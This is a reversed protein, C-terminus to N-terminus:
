SDRKYLERIQAITSEIEALAREVTAIDDGHIGYRPDEPLYRTFGAAGDWLLEALKAHPYETELDWGPDNSFPYATFEGAEHSFNGWVGMQSMLDRCAGVIERECWAVVDPPDSATM